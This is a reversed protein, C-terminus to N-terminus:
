SFGGLFRFLVATSSSVGFPKKRNILLFLRFSSIASPLTSTCFLFVGLIWGPSDSCSNLLYWRKIHPDLRSTNVLFYRYTQSSHISDLSGLLLFRFGWNGIFLLLSFFLFPKSKYRWGWALRRPFFFLLTEGSGYPWRTLSTGNLWGTWAGGLKGGGFRLTLDDRGFENDAALFSIRSASRCSTM